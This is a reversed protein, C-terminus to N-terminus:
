TDMHLHWYLATEGYKNKFNVDTGHEILSKVESINNERIYIFIDNSM